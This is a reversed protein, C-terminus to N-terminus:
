ARQNTISRIAEYAGKYWIDRFDKEVEYAFGPLRTLDEGWLMTNSLVAPILYEAPTNVHEAYFDLVEKDDKISYRERNRMGIMEGNEYRGRHYFEIQLAMSMALCKPVRGNKEIYEKVTPLVRARWKSTANLTISLLSHDIYPNLFRDRVANAFRVSEEKPLTLTPVIEDDIIQEIFERLVPDKMSDRVINQGSLYSGIEMATHTGNLIRVKQMKYPKIDQTVLVPLGAKIFPLEDNLWEPGEIVWRGFLEGTDMIDDIYGNEENLKMAEDRPFGTVIRDVLTSCFMCSENLWASFGEELGWQACYKDVCKKLEKGNDDILECSLIIIGKTADGNFFKYRTYLLKTLKGPFSGVPIDEYNCSPDYAIGAETTNSIIYRIDPNEACKLVADNDVYPNLCRSVCSIIRKKEIAQGDKQGRLYLTYLGDQNNIKDAIFKGGAIPQIMVVKSNFGVEENCRDIFYEAFGRLFNGEGYQLVKEPASELLYGQYNMEKLTKYSLNEM